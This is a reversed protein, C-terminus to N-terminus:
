PSHLLGFCIIGDKLRTYFVTVIRGYHPTLGQTVIRTHSEIGWKWWHLENCYLLKGTPHPGYVGMRVRTLECGGIVGSLDVGNQALKPQVLSHNVVKM